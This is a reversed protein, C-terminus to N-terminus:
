KGYGKQLRMIEHSLERDFRDNAYNQLEDSSLLIQNMMQPISPGYLQEIPYRSSSSRHFIGIEGTKKRQSIFAGPLGKRGDRFVGATVLAVRKMTKPNVNFKILPLRAGDSNVKGVLQTRNATFLKIAQTLGKNKIFYKERIASSLKVRSGVLTRNISTAIAKEAGNKIGSLLDQALKIQNADITIM